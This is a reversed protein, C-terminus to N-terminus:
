AARSQDQPASGKAADLLKFALDQAPGNLHDIMWTEAAQWSNTRKARDVVNTIRTREKDDVVEILEEISAPTTTFSKAPSQQSMVVPESAQVLPQQSAVPTHADPMTSRPDIAMPPMIITPDSGLQPAGLERAAVGLTVPSPLFGEGGDENLYSIVNELVPSTLPWFKRAIKVAAKKAMPDPHSEWPGMKGKEQKQWARSLARAAYIEEASVATVLLTGIALYAKVYVGRLEGREAKPLFPDFQHVPETNDGRYTFSDHSYVSQAVILNVARTDTAIKMLGRYSIDAIVKGDRPVLYALQMSPNLTLGSSAIQAMALQFSVKNSLAVKALHDNALMAQMAFLAEQQFVVPNNTAAIIKEFGGQSSAILGRLDNQTQAQLNKSM